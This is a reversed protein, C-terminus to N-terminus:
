IAKTLSVSGVGLNRYIGQQTFTSDNKINIVTGGKQPVLYINHDTSYGYSLTIGKYKVAYSNMHDHGVFVGKTSGLKQMTEFMQDEYKSCFIDELKTGYYPDKSNKREEYAPLYEQMPIHFFALSPVVKTEDGNETLAIDKITKEYWEIQNDHFKDYGDNIANGNEDVKGTDYYMNSDMMILSMLVKGNSDKVNYYYNGEGDVDESGREFICHELSELYTAIELKTAQSGEADHNGFTFAWPIKKSEMYEAFTKIATMNQNESTVDGTVIILNPNSKAILKDITDFAKKDKKANNKIHVDTIQLVRFATNDNDLDKSLIGTWAFIMSLSVLLLLVSVISITIKVSKKM